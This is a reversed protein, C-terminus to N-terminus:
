TGQHGGQRHPRLHPRMLVSGRQVVVGLLEGGVAARALHPPPARHGPPPSRRHAASTTEEGASSCVAVAPPSSSSGGRSRKGESGPCLLPPQRARPGRCGRSSSRYGKSDSPYPIPVPFHRSNGRGRQPRFFPIGRRWSLLVPVPASPRIYRAFLVLGSM